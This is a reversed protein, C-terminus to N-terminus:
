EVLAAVIARYLEVGRVYAPLQMREDPKAIGGTESAMVAFPSVGYARIGAERFYRADTASWPLFYPGVAIGPWRESIVRAVTRYEPSDLPSATRAGRQDPATVSLGATKWAPLLRALVPELASGPLLHVVVDLRWGGGPEEELRVPVVEDRFLSQLFPTLQAFRDSELPLRDPEALLEHYLGLGRSPAYAALFARVAPEVRPRPDGKGTAVLLDRAAELEGRTRACLALFAFRKQAFEIGWYKVDSPSTAEVVGGETLVTGMRAVLGPHQALIWRTGTDSGAEESSTGLLMLSRKPRVGARAVAEFALLQAATLSKMDYMGRGYIWPGEIVGGLPPHRWGGEDLLPEVDLHGQLVLARPDEGEVLAWVNARRDAFREITAHVGAAGLRAALYEALAVEDPHPESSDIRVLDQLLRVEPRAGFDVGRWLEQERDIPEVGAIALPRAFRELAFAALVTVALSAWLAVRASARVARALPSAPDPRTM